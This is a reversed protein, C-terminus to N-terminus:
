SRGGRKKDNAKTEAAALLERFRALEAPTFKAGEVLRLVLPAIAGDLLSSAVDHVQRRALEDRTTVATFVHALDKRDTRVHGKDVLRGVLTQVTTYAQDNGLRDLLDRVTAPGGDWLAKLITLEAETITSSPKPKQPSM